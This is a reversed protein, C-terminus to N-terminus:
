GGFRSITEPSLVGSMKDLVFPMGGEKVKDDTIIKDDCFNALNSWFEIWTLIKTRNATGEHLRIEVTKMTKSQFNYVLNTPSIWMDRGICKLAELFLRNNSYLRNLEQKNREVIDKFSENLFYCYENDYRSEDVVKLISDKLYFATECFNLGDELGKESYDIHLHFGNGADYMDMRDNMIETEFYDCIDNIATVVTEGSIPGRFVYEHGAYFRDSYVSGDSKLRWKEHLHAPMEFLSNCYAAEIEVGVNRTIQYTM